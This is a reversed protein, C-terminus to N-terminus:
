RAGMGSLQSTIWELDFEVDKFVRPSPRLGRGFATKGQGQRDGYSVSFYSLNHFNSADEVIGGSQFASEQQLAHCSGCSSNPFLVQARDVIRAKVAAFEPSQPSPGFGVSSTRGIFAITALEDREAGRGRIKDSAILQQDFLKAGGNDSGITV